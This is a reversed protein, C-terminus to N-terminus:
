SVESGMCDMLLMGPMERLYIFMETWVFRYVFTWLQRIQLLLISSVVLNNLNDELFSHNLWTHSTGVLSYLDATFLFLNNNNNNKKLFLNNICLVQISGLLM